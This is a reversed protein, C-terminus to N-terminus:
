SAPGLIRDGGAARFAEIADRYQAEAYGVVEHFEPHHRLPDLWPDRQLLSYTHFGGEISRRLMEMARPHETASLTRALYYTSCPDRLPWREIMADTAARATERDGRWLALTGEIIRQFM